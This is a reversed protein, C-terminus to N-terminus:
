SRRRARRGFAVEILRSLTAYLLLTGSAPLSPRGVLLVYYNGYGNTGLPLWRRVKFESHIKYTGKFRKPATSAAPASSLGMPSTCGLLVAELRFPLVAGGAM